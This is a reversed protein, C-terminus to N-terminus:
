NFEKWRVQTLKKLSDKFQIGTVNLFSVDTGIKKLEASLQTRLNEESLHPTGECCLIHIKTM